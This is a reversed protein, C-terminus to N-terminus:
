DICIYIYISIYIYIYSYPYISCYTFYPFMYFCIFIYFMISCTFIYQCSHLYISIYLFTNFFLFFYQFYLTPKQKHIHKVDCSIRRIHGRVNRLMCLIPFYGWICIIFHYIRNFINTNPLRKM